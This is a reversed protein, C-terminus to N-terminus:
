RGDSLGIENKNSPYSSHHTTAITSAHYPTSLKLTFKAVYITYFITVHLIESVKFNELNIQLEFMFYTILDM